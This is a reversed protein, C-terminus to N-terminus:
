WVDWRNSLRVHVLGDAVDLAATNEVTRALVADPLREAPIAWTRGALWRSLDAEGVELADPTIAVVGQRVSVQGAFRINWCGRDNPLALDVFARDDRVEARMQFDRREGFLFSLERGTLALVAGPAPDQQYLTVRGRLAILEEMTPDTGPMSRCEADLAARYTTSLYLGLGIVLTALLVGLVRPVRGRTVVGVVWTLTQTPRRRPRRPNGVEDFM